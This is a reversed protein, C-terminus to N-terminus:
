AEWIGGYVPHSAVGSYSYRTYYDNPARLVALYLSPFRNQYRM